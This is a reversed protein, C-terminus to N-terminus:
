TGPADCGSVLDEYRQVIWNPADEPVADTIAEQVRVFVAASRSNDIMAVTGAPVAREYVILAVAVLVIGRLVGFFFGFGQDLGGLASNRVLSSFVPTFLAVLVLVVAFVAAFAAIVTLECSDGLIPGVVPIERMYPEAVPALMFAAVAAVVWGLIALAERLFGRAYALIASIVIVAAVAGDVLTFADM